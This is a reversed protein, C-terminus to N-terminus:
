HTYVRSMEDWPSQFPIRSYVEDVPIQLGYLPLTSRTQRPEGGHKHWQAHIVKAGDLNANLNEDRWRKPLSIKQVPHFTGRNIHLFRITVRRLTSIDNLNRRSHALTQLAQVNLDKPSCAIFRLEELKPCIHESGPTPSLGSLWESNAAVLVPSAPRYQLPNPQGLTAQQQIQQPIGLQAWSLTPATLTLDTVEPTLRLCEILEKALIEMSGFELSVIKNGWTQLLPLLVSIGGQRRPRSTWTLSRILTINLSSDFNVTPWQSSDLHDIISLDRLHPLQVQKSLNSKNSQIGDAITHSRPFPNAIQLECRVLASCHGLIKLATETSLAYVPEGSFPTSPLGRLSLETLAAWRVPVQNIDVNFTDLCLSHLRDSQAAVIAPSHPVSIGITPMLTFWRLLLYKLQPTRSPPLTFLSELPSEINVGMLSLNQWQESHDQILALLRTVPSEDPGPYRSYDSPVLPGATETLRISLPCAKARSLWLSALHIQGEMINSWARTARSYLADGSLTNVEGDEENTYASRLDQETRQSPYGPFYLYLYSWMIAVDIALARWRRCVHSLSLPAEFARMM